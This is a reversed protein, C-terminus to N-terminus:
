IRSTTVFRTEGNNSCDSSRNANVSRDDSWCVEVTVDYGQVGAPTVTVKGRGNPLARCLRTSWIRGDCQQLSPCTAYNTPAPTAACLVAPNSYNPRAYLPTLAKNARMMDIYNYALNTAETRFTASQNNRLSTAMLAAMGLLGISLVIISVLVEIMSVGRQRSKSTTQFFEM